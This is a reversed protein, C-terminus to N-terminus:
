KSCAMERVADWLEFAMGPPAKTVAKRVDRCRCHAKIHLADELNAQPPQQGTKMERAIPLMVAILCAQGVHRIPEFEASQPLRQASENALRPEKANASGGAMIGFLIFALPRVFGTPIKNM